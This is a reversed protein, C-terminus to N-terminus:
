LFQVVGTGLMGTRLHCVVRTGWGNVPWLLMVPHGGQLARETGSSHDWATYRLQERDMPLPAWWGFTEVLPVKYPFPLLPLLSLLNYTCTCVCVHMVGKGGGGVCVCYSVRDVSWLLMQPMPAVLPTRLTHASVSPHRQEMVACLDTTSPHTPITSLPYGPSSTSINIFDMRTISM